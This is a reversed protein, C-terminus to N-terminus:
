TANGIVVPTTSLSVAGTGTTAVLIVRLSSVATTGTNVFAFVLDGLKMGLQGGNTIYGAGDITGIPDASQYTWISPAGNGIGQVVLQPPNSTSYSM